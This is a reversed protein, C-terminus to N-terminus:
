MYMWNPLLIQDMLAGYDVWALEGAHQTFMVYNLSAASAIEVWDNLEDRAFDAEAHACFPL